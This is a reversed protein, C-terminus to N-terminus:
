RNTCQMQKGLFQLIWEREKGSLKFHTLGEALKTCLNTYGAERFRSITKRVWSWRMVDDEKANLLYIPMKRKSAPLSTASLLHGVVGVFGGLRRPYQLACHLATCCGQSAGGIFVKSADGGLLAIEKDLIRFIRDRTDRLSSRVILDERAGGFDTKYDYWAHQVDGDHATIALRKATPLTVKLAPGLQKKSSFFYHPKWDAYGTGDLCFQHLYVLTYKHKQAHPMLVSVRGSFNPDDRQSSLASAGLKRFKDAHLPQGERLAKAYTAARSKRRSGQERRQDAVKRKFGRLEKQLRSELRQTAKAAALAKAAAMAKAAIQAASAAQRKKVAHDRRAAEQRAQLARLRKACVADAKREAQLQRMKMMQVKVRTHAVERRSIAAQTDGVAAKRAAKAVRVAKRAGVVAQKDKLLTQRMQKLSQKAGAECFGKRVCDKLHAQAARLKGQRARLQRQARALQGARRRCAGQSAKLTRQGIRGESAAERWQVRLAALKETMNGAM